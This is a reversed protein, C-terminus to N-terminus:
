SVWPLYPYDRMNQTTGISPNSSLKQWNWPMQPYCMIIGMTLVPDGSIENWDANEPTETRGLLNLVTQQDRLVETIISRHSPNNAVLEKWNALTTLILTM